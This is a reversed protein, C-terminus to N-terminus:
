PLRPPENRAEEVQEVEFGVAELVGTKGYTDARGFWAAEGATADLAEYMRKRSMRQSM